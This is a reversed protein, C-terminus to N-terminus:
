LIEELKGSREIWRLVSLIIYYVVKRESLHHQIALGYPGGIYQYDEELLNTHMYIKTDRYPGDLSVIEMNNLGYNLLITNFTTQTIPEKGQECYKISALKCYTKLLRRMDTSIPFKINHRKDSRTKRNKTNQKVINNNPKTQKQFIPNIYEVERIEGGRKKSIEHDNKWKEM